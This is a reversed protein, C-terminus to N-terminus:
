AEEEFEWSKIIGGQRHIKMSGNFYPKPPLHRIKKFLDSGRLSEPTSPITCHVSGKQWLINTLDSGCNIGSIKQVLYSLIMDSGPSNSSKM